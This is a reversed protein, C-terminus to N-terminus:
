RNDWRAALGSRTDIHTFSNYRGVSIGLSEAYDAVTDHEVDKVVIDCARSRLHQSKSAGGVAANHEVCRNASNITIPKGFHVRIAELAELTMSDISDLGCGCQCAFEKRNFHESVKNM